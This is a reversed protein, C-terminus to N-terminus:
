NIKDLSILLDIIDQLKLIYDPEILAIASQPMYPSAATKPDQVICLGGCDKIMKLGAAGDHNAGTLVIGILNNKFAVAATEFLVDIAPRAYNVKEDVTLSFTHDKEILLHYNPPAIYIVGNKIKEKEDAEKIQLQCNKNLMTIWQSDSRPSVHQVIVIPTEFDAPLASFITKMAEMGGSSVGIVIAQYTRITRINKRISKKSKIWNPIFRPM